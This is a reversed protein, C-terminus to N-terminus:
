YLYLKLGVLKDPENQKGTVCPHEALFNIKLREMKLKTERELPGETAQFVTAGILLFFIYASKRVTGSGM